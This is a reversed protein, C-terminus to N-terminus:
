GVGWVGKRLKNKKVFEFALECSVGIEYIQMWKQAKRQPQPIAGIVAISEIPYISSLIIHPIDVVARSRPEIESAKAELQAESANVM